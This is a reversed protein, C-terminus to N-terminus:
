ERRIVLDGCLRGYVEAPCWHTLRIEHGSKLVIAAGDDLDVPLIAAVEQPNVFSVESYKPYAGGSGSHTPTDIFSTMDGDALKM